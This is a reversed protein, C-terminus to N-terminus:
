LLLRGKASIKINKRVTEWARNSDVEADLNELTAFKHRIEVLYQEKSEEENLKKLHFEEMYLRHTTQKSVALRERFKSTVLYHDTDYDATRLSRVDLLSSHRRRDIL